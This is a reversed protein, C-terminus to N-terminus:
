TRYRREQDLRHDWNYM